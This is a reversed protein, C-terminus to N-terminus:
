YSQGPTTLVTIEKLLQESSYGAVEYFQSGEGNNYELNYSTIQAGGSAETYSEVEPM